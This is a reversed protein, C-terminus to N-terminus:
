RIGGLYLNQNPSKFFVGTQQYPQMKLRALIVARAIIGTTAAAAAATTLAGTSHFEKDRSNRFPAADTVRVIVMPQVNRARCASSLLEASDFSGEYGGGLGGVAALPRSWPLLLGRGPVGM